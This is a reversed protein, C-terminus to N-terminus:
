QMNWIGTKLTKDVYAAFTVPKRNLIKEVDNTIFENRGDLVESFLYQILWTYSEPLMFSRLLAAYAEMDMETYSIKRKTGAAILETATKFSLLEDGTFEYIQKDYKDDILVKVIMEALDDVDIFPELAKIEPLLIENNLVADLLFNESFNQMFWSSQVVVWNLGSNIIVQECRGAEKEGRGSLLVLKKVNAQKAHQVFLSIKETSGPMALDPQFTIYVTEVDKLVQQWNSADEWNFSPKGNRSGAIFPIQLRQLQETVRRGTKGTSGLVLIKNRM